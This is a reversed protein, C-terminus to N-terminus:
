SKKFFTHITYQGARVLGPLKGPSEVVIHDDFM